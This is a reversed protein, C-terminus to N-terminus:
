RRANSRRWPQDWVPIEGVRCVPIDWQAATVLSKPDDVIEGRRLPAGDHRTGDAASAYRHRCFDGLLVYGWELAAGSDPAEIWCSMHFDGGPDEATGAGIV